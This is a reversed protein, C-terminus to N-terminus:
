NYRINRYGTPLKAPPRMKFSYRLMVEHSGSSESKLDSVTIDYAYGFKLNDTIDLGVIMAVADDVRYTMGGWFRDGYDVTMNFDYQASVGDTKLYFSPKLTVM